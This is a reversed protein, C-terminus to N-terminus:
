QQTEGAGEAAGLIETMDARQALSVLLRAQASEMIETLSKLRNIYDTLNSSLEAMALAIEQDKEIGDILDAGARCLSHLAMRRTLGHEDM